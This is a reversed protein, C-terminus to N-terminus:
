TSKKAAYALSAHRRDRSSKPESNEDYLSRHMGVTPAIAGARTLYLSQARSVCVARIPVKHLYMYMYNVIIAAAVPLPIFLKM